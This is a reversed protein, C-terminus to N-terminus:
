QVDEVMTRHCRPIGHIGRRRHGPHVMGWAEVMYRTHVLEFFGVLAGVEFYLYPEVPPGLILDLSQGDHQKCLAALQQAATRNAGTLEAPQVLGQQATPSM